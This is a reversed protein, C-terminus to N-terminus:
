NARKTAGKRSHATRRVYAALRLMPGLVSLLAFPIYALSHKISGLLPQSFFDVAFAYAVYNLGITRLLWWGKPGLTHQLRAISFLALLYTWLAAIGFFIFTTLPPAAGIYSLWAVLGLHIFLVSVFALGFERAYQKLPQFSPGFLATLASGTYAPWFLLFSLRATVQLAAGTGREASGLTALVLGTLGLAACLATGIWMAANQRANM